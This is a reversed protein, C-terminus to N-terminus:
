SDPFEIDVTQDANLLFFALFTVGAEQADFRAIRVGEPEYFTDGPTLVSEPQGDIQYVVSGSEISGFVPSNHVHLGGAHGAAISIRRAEVRHTSTHPLPQNLVVTRSVPGADAVLTPLTAPNGAHYEADSVPRDAEPGSGDPIEEIALHTMFRDATAGHWHWEHPAIHVDDGARITQIPGGRRQVLGTGHTIVLVQGMPHRHWVTRAGPAFHVSDIQLHSTGDPAAIADIWGTGTFWQAPAVTLTRAAAIRM